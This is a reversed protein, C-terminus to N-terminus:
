ASTFKCCSASVTAKGSQGTGPTCQGQWEIKGANLVPASLSITTDCSVAGGFLFETSLCALTVLVGKGGQPSTAV